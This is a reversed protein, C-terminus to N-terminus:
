HLVVFDNKLTGEIEWTQFLTSNRLVRNDHVSGPWRASAYFFEYSPGCVVLANISHGGHRDVYDKENISPSEIPILTGDVAGAVGPFDAISAFAVPIHSPDNYWRVFVHFLTRNIARSVRNVIRCVTSKDIGHIDGVSHYQSGIGYFHLGVLLQQRPSLAHNRETKHQIIPGIYLLVKEATSRSIRFREIFSSELFFDFNIRDRYIRRRPRHRQRELANEEEESSSSSDILNLRLPM